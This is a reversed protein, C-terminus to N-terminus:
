STTLCLFPGRHLFLGMDLAWQVRKKSDNLLWWGIIWLFGLVYILSFAPPPETEAASYIGHAIQTLSVFLYLLVTPSTVLSFFNVM